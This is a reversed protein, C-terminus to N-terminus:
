PPRPVEGPQSLSLQLLPRSLGLIPGVAGEGLGHPQQVWRRVVGDVGDVVVEAGALALDAPHRHMGRHIILLPLPDVEGVVLFLGLPLDEEPFPNSSPMSTQTHNLDM